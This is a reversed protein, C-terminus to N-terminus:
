RTSRAKDKALFSFLLSMLALVIGFIFAGRFGAMMIDPNQRVQDLMINLKAVDFLVVQAMVLMYLAIGLSSGANLAVKYVGSAVGQKDAPAHQMILRNNPALFFGMGAGLCALSLIVWLLSSRPTLFSLSTFAIVAITMGTICLIRSGLRDSLAGTFPALIMSMLSSAMLVLGMKAIPIHMMMQLFFPFLFGIGINMAMACLAALAAFTFNLNRFLKLDLLPYAIRKEQFVFLLLSLLGTASSAVVFPEGWGTKAGTNMAYLLGVLGIFLLAAGIYDFRTDVAKGQKAPLKKWAAIFIVTALPVAMIFNGRWSFYSNMFGGVVPGCTLGLGQLTAYLGLARGKINAPLYYTLLAICIPSYMAQGLSQLSRTIFLFTFNPAIACLLAGLGFVVLGMLFVKKYGINDGLKGFGLLTSTIILLYITPLWAVLGVKIGFYAAISPLSIILSSYDLTIMFSVASVIAILWYQGRKDKIVFEDM